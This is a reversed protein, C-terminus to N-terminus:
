DKFLGSSFKIESQKKNEHFMPIVEDHKNKEKRGIYDGHYIAKTLATIGTAKSFIKTLRRKYM